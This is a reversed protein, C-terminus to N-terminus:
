VWLPMQELPFFHSYSPFFLHKGVPNNVDGKHIATFFAIFVAHCQAVDLSQEPLQVGVGGAAEPLVKEM